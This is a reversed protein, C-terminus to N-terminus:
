ADWQFDSTNARDPETAHHQRTRWLRVVGRVVLFPTWVAGVLLISAMLTEWWQAPRYVVFGVVLWAASALLAIWEGGSLHRTRWAQRLWGVFVGILWCFWVIILLM